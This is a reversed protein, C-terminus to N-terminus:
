KQLSHSNPHLLTPPNTIILCTVQASTDREKKKNISNCIDRHGGKEIEIEGKQRLFAKTKELRPSQSLLVSM